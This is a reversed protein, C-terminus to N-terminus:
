AFIAKLPKWYYDKWGRVIDKYDGAPVGIQSFELKTKGKSAATLKFTVISFVGRPWDTARWAQVIMKGPDLELNVGSIYDGYCTFSGGVKTSIKAKEDTFTAHKKSDMLVGYVQIPSANIITTQKITKTATM